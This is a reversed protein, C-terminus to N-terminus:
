SNPAGNVGTVTLFMIQLSQGGGQELLIIMREKSNLTSTRPKQILKGVFTIHTLCLPIIYM